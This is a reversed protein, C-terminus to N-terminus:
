SDIFFYHKEFADRDIKLYNWLSCQYSLRFVIDSIDQKLAM